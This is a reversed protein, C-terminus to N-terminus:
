SRAPRKVPVDKKMGNTYVVSVVLQTKDDRVAGNDAIYLLLDHARDAKIVISGDAKNLLVGPERKDAVGVLWVSNGPATDWAAFQGDVNHVLIASITGGADVHLSILADNHGDPKASETPGVLDVSAFGEATATDGPKCGWSTAAFVTVLAAIVSPTSFHLGRSEPRGRVSCGARAGIIGANDTPAVFSKRSSRVAGIIGGTEM